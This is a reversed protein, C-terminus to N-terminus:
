LIIFRHNEQSKVVCKVQNKKQIRYISVKFIAHQLYTTFLLISKKKILVSLSQLANISNVKLTLSLELNLAGRDEGRCM